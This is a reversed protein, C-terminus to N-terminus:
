PLRLFRRLEARLADLNDPPQPATVAPAGHQYVLPMQDGFRGWAMLRRWTEQEAASNAPLALHLAQLLDLGYLDVAGRVAESFARYNELVVMYFIAISPPGVTVAVIFPYLKDAFVGLVSWVFVTIFLLAIAAVSLDLQIKAEELLSFYNEDEKIVKLLRLWFVEMDLGYKDLGYERHVEALNAMRTPGIFESDQPFWTLIQTRLRTHRSELVEGSYNLLTICQQQLRDLPEDADIAAPRTERLQQKLAVFFANLQAFPIPSGTMQYEYLQQYTNQLANVQDRNVAGATVEIRAARLEARWSTQGPATVQRVARHELLEPLLADIRGRLKNLEDRQSQTLSQRLQETLFYKGEMVQRMLPNLSWFVLALLCTFVFLGLWRSIAEAPGVSFVATTWEGIWPFAWSALALNVGLFVAAPLFGVLLFSKSVLGQIRDLLTGLTEFM